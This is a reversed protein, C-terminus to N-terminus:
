PRHPIGETDELAHPMEEAKFQDDYGIVVLDSM